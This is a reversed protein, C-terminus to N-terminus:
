LHAMACMRMCARETAETTDLETIRHVEAQWATRDM